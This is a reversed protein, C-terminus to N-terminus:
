KLYEQLSDKKREHPVLIQISENTSITDSSHVEKKPFTQNVCWTETGHAFRDIWREVAVHVFSIAHRVKHTRFFDTLQDNFRSIFSPLLLCPM